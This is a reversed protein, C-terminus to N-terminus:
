EGRLKANLKTQVFKVAKWFDKEVDEETLTRSEDYYELQFALSKKGEGLADSEFIDFLKINKLLKSSGDFITKSVLDHEVNKDLIFAVDRIVKPYKLLEVFKKEPVEIDRLLDLNFDFIFVDQTIDFNRLVSEKVKGGEGILTDNKFKAFGYDFIDNNIKTYSDNILKDLSLNLLLEDVFGKL